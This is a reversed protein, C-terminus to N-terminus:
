PRLEYTDVQGDAMCQTNYDLVLTNGTRTVIADQPAVKINPASDRIFRVVKVNKEGCDQATTRSYSGEYALNGNQSISFRTGTFSITEQPTPAPQCFCSRNTLQWTGELSPAPEGSKSCSVIGSTTALLLLLSLALAYKM